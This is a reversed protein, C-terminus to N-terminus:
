HLPTGCGRLVERNLHVTVTTPFREGSMTDRCERAELLVVLTRGASTTRYETTRDVPDTVPEPTPFVYRREGFQTVLVINGGRTLEMFWGPENGNARFTVGRLKADERISRPRNETCRLTRGGMEVLAENGKSWFTISGDSYKAGSAAPVGPLAKSVGPLFAWVDNTKARHQVVIETADDCDYAFTTRDPPASQDPATACAAAVCAALLPAISRSFRTISSPM